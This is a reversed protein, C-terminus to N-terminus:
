LKNLLVVDAPILSKATSVLDNSNHVMDTQKSIGWYFPLLREFELKNKYYGCDSGTYKVAM